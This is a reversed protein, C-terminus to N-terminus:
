AMDDKLTERRMSNSQYNRRPREGKTIQRPTPYFMSDARPCKVQVCCNAISQNHAMGNKKMSGTQRHGKWGGERKVVIDVLTSWVTIPGNGVQARTVEGSYRITSLSWDAWALMPVGLNIVKTSACTSGWM